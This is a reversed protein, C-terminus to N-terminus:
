RWDKYIIKGIVVLVMDFLIAIEFFVVIESTVKFNIFMMMILLYIILIYKLIERHKVIEKKSLMIDDSNVPSFAYIVIMAIFTLSHLLLLNKIFIVSIVQCILIYTMASEALCIMYNKSHYGNTYARLSSFTIYFVITEICKETLVGVIAILLIGIIKLFLVEVQYLYIAEDDKGILGFDKLRNVTKLALKDLCEIGKM